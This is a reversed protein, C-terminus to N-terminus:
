AHGPRRVLILYASSNSCDLCLGLRAAQEDLLHHPAIVVPGRRQLMLACISLGGRM